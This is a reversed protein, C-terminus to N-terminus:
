NFAMKLTREMWGLPRPINVNKKQLQYATLWEKRGRSPFLVYKLYEFWGKSRDRKLFIGTGNPLPLIGAWRVRAEKIVHAGAALASSVPDEFFSPPLLHTIDEKVWGKIEGQSVPRFSFLEDNKM